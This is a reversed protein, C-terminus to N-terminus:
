VSTLEQNRTKTWEEDEDAISRVKYIFSDEEKAGSLSLLFDEIGYVGENLKQSITIEPIGGFYIIFPEELNKVVDELYEIRDELKEEHNLYEDVNLIEKFFKMKNAEKKIDRQADKSTVYM